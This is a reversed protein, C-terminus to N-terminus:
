SLNEFLRAGRTCLWRYLLVSIAFLLAVVGSLYILPSVLRSLLYYGGALAVILAWGGFLYVMVSMGQKLPVTENTWHLNPKKVDLFLGLEAMMIIFLVAAAPILVAFTITPKMVWEVAAILVVAPILTLLLHLKLKAMLVQRGSVPFVQALWLNKGELSISPATIDNMTTLLCVVAAVALFVTDMHEAFVDQLLEQIMARKWTLAVTAVLMIVVGLGCNLMYNASGLFRHLERHLLAGSVSRVAIRKEQYRVKAEGRNSTVIKLFNRSLVWFTLAFLGGAIAAFILMSLLNGEAALGMHYLPYLISRVQNGIEQPNALITQAIFYIHGCFYYYIAFVVLSLLVVVVNKHKLKNSVLAVLWGLLASLVLALVSLVLPILLTCIVGATNLEVSLFWVILTPIMVILEYMLGTFYVGSLRIVLIKVPPVPMALLFDNDKSKYLSAYTNFVSGFVGLFLAMLSMIAFYLWGVGASVLPGCLTSAAFYFVGGLVGFILLYLLAYAVAGKASRNKGSKKNRYVWSFVEMMQKKFLAGIM